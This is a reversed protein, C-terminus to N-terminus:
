FKYYNNQDPVLIPHSPLVTTRRRTLEKILSVEKNEKILDEIEKEIEKNSKRNKVVVVM